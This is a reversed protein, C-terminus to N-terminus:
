HLLELPFLVRPMFQLPRGDTPPILLSFTLALCTRLLLSAPARQGEALESKEAKEDRKSSEERVSGRYAFRGPHPRPTYHAHPPTEPPQGPSSKTIPFHTVLNNM